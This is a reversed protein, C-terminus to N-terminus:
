FPLPALPSNWKIFCRIRSRDEPSLDLFKVGVGPLEDKEAANEFGQIRTVESSVTIVEDASLTIRIFIRDTVKLKRSTQVFAGGESLDSVFGHELAGAGAFFCDAPCCVTFRTYARMENHTM